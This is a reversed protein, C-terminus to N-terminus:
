LPKLKNKDKPRWEGCATAELNGKKLIEDLRDKGALELVDNVGIV